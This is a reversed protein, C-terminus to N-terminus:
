IVVSQIVQFDDFSDELNRRFLQQAWNALGEPHQEKKVVSAIIDLKVQNPTYHEVLRSYANMQSPRISPMSFALNQVSQFSITSFFPRLKKQVEERVLKAAFWGITEAADLLDEDIAGQKSAYDVAPFYGLNTKKVLEIIQETLAEGVVEASSPLHKELLEHSVKIVLTIHIKSVHLQTM